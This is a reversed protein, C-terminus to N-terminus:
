LILMWIEIIVIIYNLLFNLALPTWLFFRQCRWLLCSRGRSWRLKLLVIHNWIYRFFCILLKINNVFSQFFLLGFHQVLGVQPISWACVWTLLSFSKILSYLVQPLDFLILSELLWYVLREYLSLFWSKGFTSTTQRLGM